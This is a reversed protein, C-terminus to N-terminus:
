LNSLVTGCSCRHNRTSLADISCGFLSLTHEDTPEIFLEQMLEQCKRLNVDDCERAQWRSYARRLINGHKADLLYDYKHCLRIFEATKKQMRRNTQSDSSGTPILPFIDLCIGWEGANDLYHTSISTTNRLGIRMWSIINHVNTMHSQFYFREDLLAPAEEILRTVDQPLMMLDIDDDWPIYGQHRCAGLLTGFGAFYPMDLAQFIRLTEDVM